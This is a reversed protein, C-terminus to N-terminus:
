RVGAAKCAGTLAIYRRMHWSADGYTKGIARIRKYYHGVANEDAMGIGGHLQIAQGCVFEAAQSVAIMTASVAAAREGAPAELMALGRYIMSRANELKVFMESLRHALTQFSALPRGFQQRVKLHDATLAIAATMAGIAEAALLVRTRDLVGELMALAAPGSAVVADAGVRVRDISLDSACRGDITRYHRLGLGQADAPVHLIACRAAGDPGPVTATVLFDTASAGDLVVIKRGTLILDGGERVAQTEPHAVGYRSAAEECALSILADGNAIRELLTAKAPFASPAAGILGASLVATSLFPAAVLGRGFEELILAADQAEAGIGGDEEPILLALWGLEAFLRWHGPEFGLPNAAAARAEEFGHREDIFRRAGDRLLTQEDSLKFQM